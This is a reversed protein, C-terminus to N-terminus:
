TINRFIALKLKSVWKFVFLNRNYFAFATLFIAFIYCTKATCKILAKKCVDNYCINKRDFFNDSWEM